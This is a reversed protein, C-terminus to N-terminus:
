YYLENTRLKLYRRIAIATSVGPVILGLILLLLSVMLFTERTILLAFAPFYQNFAWGSFLLLSVSLVTSLIGLMLSNILYPRRIFGSTAGVLQMTKLLFRKSYITLRISSNILALAVMLLLLAAAFLLYTIKEINDNVLGVLDRDYLVDIIYDRDILEKKLADLDGAAVIEARLNIDITNSLPNYGLFAIFDEGLDEELHRAAEEKTVLEASKAYSALQQTKLLTRLEAEPINEDLVLTFTFNERVAAGLDRASLVLVGLTGLVFLVLTMSIVVSIYSSRVRSSTFKQEKSSM